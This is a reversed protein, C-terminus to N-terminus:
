QILFSYLLVEIATPIPCMFTSFIQQIHNTIEFEGLTLSPDGSDFWTTWQNNGNCNASTFEAPSFIGQNLVVNSWQLLFVVILLM